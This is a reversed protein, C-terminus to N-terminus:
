GGHSRALCADRAIQDIRKATEAVTKDNGVPDDIEVSIRETWHGPGRRVDEVMRDLSLPALIEDPAPIARSPEVHGNPEAIAEPRQNPRSRTLRQYAVGRRDIEVFGDVRGDPQPGIAVHDNGLVLRERRVEVDDLAGHLGRATRHLPSQDAGVSRRDFGQNISVDCDCHERVDIVAGALQEVHGSDGFLQVVDARQHYPVETMRDAHHLDGEVTMSDVEGDTAGVFIEVTTRARRCENGDRLRM